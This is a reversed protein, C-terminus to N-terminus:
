NVEITKFDKRIYAQKNGKVVEGVIWAERNEMEKFDRLLQDVKDSPVIMLVGGSTEATFGQTLKYNIIKDHISLMKYVIPLTDLRLDVAQEQAEALNKTHGLIGFGTIDTGGHAKYKVMLEAASKNLSTMEGCCIDYARQLDEVSILDKAKQWHKNNTKYWKYANVAVRSGLAKTLVLVDGVRANKPYIIAKDDLVVNAVGGIIPYENFVSQGGTIATGAENAKDNFGRIMERTSVEQEEPSMNLSVGLIMLMHDCHTIGMAYLDSLVNACAIEGQAYPDDVLPYFFDTTSVM